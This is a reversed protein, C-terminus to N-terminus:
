ARVWFQSMDWKEKFVQISARPEESLASDLVVLPTRFANQQLQEQESFQWLELLADASLARCQDTLLNCHLDINAYLTDQIEDEAKVKDVASETMEDIASAEHVPICITTMM